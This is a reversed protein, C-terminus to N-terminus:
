ICFILTQTKHIINILLECIIVQIKIFLSNIDVLFVFHILELKKSLYIFLNQNDLNGFIILLILTQTIHMINISFEYLEFTIFSFLDSM